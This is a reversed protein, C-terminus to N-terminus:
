QQGIPVRAIVLLIIGLIFFLAFGTNVALYMKRRKPDTQDVALQRLRSWDKLELDFPGTSIGHQSLIGKRVFYLVNALVICTIWVYDLPQPSMM